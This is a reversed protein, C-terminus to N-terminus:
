PSKTNVSVQISTLSIVYAFINAVAGLEVSRKTIVIFEETLHEMKNM